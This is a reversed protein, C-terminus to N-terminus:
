APETLDIQVYPAGHLDRPRRRSLAGVECKGTCGFHRLGATGGLGTAGAVVVKKEAMLLVGAGASWELYCIIASRMLRESCKAAANHPPAPRHGQNKPM